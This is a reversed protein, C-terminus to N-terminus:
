FWIIMLWNQKLIRDVVLHKSIKSSCIYLMYCICCKTISCQESVKGMLGYVDILYCSPYWLLCVLEISCYTNARKPLKILKPVQIKRQSITIVCTRTHAYCLRILRWFICWAIKSSILNCSNANACHFVLYAWGTYDTYVDIKVKLRSYLWAPALM